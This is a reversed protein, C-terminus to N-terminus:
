VHTGPSAMLGPGFTVAVESRPERLTHTDRRHTNIVPEPPLLGQRIPLEIGSRVVESEARTTRGKVRLGLWPTSVRPHHSRVPHLRNIVGPRHSIGDRCLSSACDHRPLVHQGGRLLDDQAAEPVRSESLLIRDLPLGKTLLTCPNLLFHILRQSRFRVSSRCGGLCSM